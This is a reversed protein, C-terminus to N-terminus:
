DAPRRVIPQIHREMQDRTLERIARAVEAAPLAGQDMVTGEPMPQVLVEGIVYKAHFEPPNRLFTRGSGVSPEGERAPSVDPRLDPVPLEVSQNMIVELPMGLGAPTGHMPVPLTVSVGHWTPVADCKCVGIGSM